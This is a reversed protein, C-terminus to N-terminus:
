RSQELVVDIEVPRGQRNVKVHVTEGPNKRELALMVDSPADITEGEIGVIIDGLEVGGNANRRTARMGAKAAGSGPYVELVLAGKLGLSAMIRYSALNVGLSPRELHGFQILEPVVWNVADVPISFGIGASAGSPSYIATNVGIIRGASDLLPGGSNGPNIAADTQIVGRIPVRAASEIERDLASIVGTTLTQDLGFPNGIAYVSQGVRLDESTGIPIPKLRDPPAEILLVALDKEPAAGIVKAPWTSRDALTVTARDANQIVHFNTIVHGQDDWVFGSGTGQPIETVNWSFFDQRFTSTTIYAVSPSAHDFIAMTSQEEETLPPRGTVARAGNATSGGSRCWWGGMFALVILAASQWPIHRRM